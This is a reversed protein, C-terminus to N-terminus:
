GGMRRLASIALGALGLVGLGVIPVIPPLEGTNVAVGRTPLTAEQFPPPFTFTPLATQPGVPQAGGASNASFVGTAAAAIATATELAGPTGTIYDLTAQLQATGVNLTPVANLDVTPLASLEGGTVVVIDEFVWGLGSPAGPFQVQLWKEYRGVVAYFTGPKINGIRQYETGPGSRINAGVTADKAEARLQSIFQTATRSPTLSIVVEVTATVSPIILQISTPQQATTRAPVLALVALM